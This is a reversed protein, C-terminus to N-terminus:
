TSAARGRSGVFRSGIFRSGMFRFGLVQAGKFRLARNKARVLGYLMLAFLLFGIYAQELPLRRHLPATLVGYALEVHIWYVFLSSRGLEVLPARTFFMPARSQGRRDTHWLYAAGVLMLVFGLRIFFFTTSSTWFDTQGYIAPLFSAGYGAVVLGAGVVAVAYNVWREERPTKADLWLGVAGGALLFGAWPFMAFATGSGVPRLYRELPDPLAALPALARVIPTFMAFAVAAVTFLVARWPRRISLIGAAAVMSLGIINLIDVKLLSSLAGGSIIWSQLRFLFALGFIQWGRRRALAAAEAETRGRRLRAVAGLSLAVGALFLFLPAGGIGGVFNILHYADRRRDESLTWSDIVHGQIMVLVGVGRLWDLYSKRDSPATHASTV